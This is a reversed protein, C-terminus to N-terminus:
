FFIAVDKTNKCIKYNLQLFKMNKVCSIEYFGKSGELKLLM